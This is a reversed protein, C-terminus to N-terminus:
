LISLIQCHSEDIMSIRESEASCSDNYPRFRKCFIVKYFDDCIGEKRETLHMFHLTCKRYNQSASIIQLVKSSNKNRLREKERKRGGYGHMAFADIVSEYFSRQLRIYRSSVRRKADREKM